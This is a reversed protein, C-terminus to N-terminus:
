DHWTDLRGWVHCSPMSSPRRGGTGVGQLPTRQHHLLVGLTCPMVQRTLGLRDGKRTISGSVRFPAVKRHLTQLRSRGSVMFAGAQVLPRSVMSRRRHLGHLVWSAWHFVRRFFVPDPTTGVTWRRGRRLPRPLYGLSGASGASLSRPGEVLTFLDAPSCGGGRASASYATLRVGTVM